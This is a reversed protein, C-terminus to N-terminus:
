NVEQVCQYNGAVTTWVRIVHDFCGTCILGHSKPIWKAVYVFSPHMLIQQKGANKKKLYWVRATSDASATVFKNDKIHWDIDYILGLHGTIRNRLKGAIVHFVQISNHTACALRLGNNSFKVCLCGPSPVAINHLVTNPILCQMYSKRSWEIRENIDDESEIQQTNHVGRYLSSDHCSNASKGGNKKIKTRVSSKPLTASFLSLYLTSPYKSRSGSKWWGYLDHHEVKTTKRPQYLQLRLNEGTNLNDDASRVKLFAWAITKEKSRNMPANPLFKQILPLRSKRVSALILPQHDVIGDGEARFQPDSEPHEYSKLENQPINQREFIHLLLLTQQQVSTLWELNVPLIIQEEWKCYSSYVFVLESTKWRHIRYTNMLIPLSIITIDVVLM